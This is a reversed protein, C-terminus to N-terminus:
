AASLAPEESPPSAHSKTWSVMHFVNEFALWANEMREHGEWEAPADM